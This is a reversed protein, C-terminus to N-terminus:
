QVGEREQNMAKFKAIIEEDSLGLNEIMAQADRAFPHDPYENIVQQYIRRAEGDQDLDDDLTLAKMYLVDVRRRWSQDNDTIRDYLKIAQQPQGMSKLTGAARFLYEPAMSDLPYAAAYAKYVDVMGQATRQDFARHEFLSDEKARIRARAELMKADDGAGQGNGCAHALAAGAIILLTKRM